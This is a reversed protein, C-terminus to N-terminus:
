AGEPHNPKRQHLALINGDPDSVLTIRCYPCDLIDMAIRVGRGKLYVLAADLDEVEPCAGGATQTPGGHTPRKPSRSPIARRIRAFLGPKGITARLPSARSCCASSRM